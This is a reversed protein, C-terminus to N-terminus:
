LMWQEIYHCSDSMYCHAHVCVVYVSYFLINCMNMFFYIVAYIAYIIDSYNTVEVEM